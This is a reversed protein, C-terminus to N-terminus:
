TVIFASTMLMTLCHMDFTLAKSVNRQALQEAVLCYTEYDAGLGGLAGLDQEATANPCAYASSGRPASIPM